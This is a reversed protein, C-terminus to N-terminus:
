NQSYLWSEVKESIWYSATLSLDDLSEDNTHLAHSQTLHLKVKYIGSWALWLNHSVTVPKNNRKPSLTHGVICFSNNQSQPM